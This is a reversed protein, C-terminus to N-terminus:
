FFVLWTASAVVGAALVLALVTRLPRGRIV